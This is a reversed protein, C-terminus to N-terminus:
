KQKKLKNLLGELIEDKDDLLHDQIVIDPIVGEEKKSGNVRVIQGKSINVLINTRPLSYQFVSAYLTPYEGTEEGVITGWGYDQIQAATVAAQSYSQRNVLVYVDGQFRNTKKQTEYLDLEPSYVEGGPNKLIQKFYTTTTDNNQRTFEKLPKSTKLTFESCWKFPKDAFYSVLYDSFSDNGGTNNRLDIILNTKKSAKIEIFASDIFKQYKTEDGSFAGPNLYASGDMFELKQDSWFIESRISEFDNIAHIPNLTYEKVTDNQRIRVHYNEQKGFAQWFYRPFSYFEMKAKKFYPREAAIYPYISCVIEDIFRGNVSLLEDGLKIDTNKSWNKRIYSKGNEFTIELPFLTGDSQIYEMYPQIPFDIYTHGNHIKTVLQQLLNTTELLNLSDEGIASKIQNYTAEFDKKTTYAFPNFHAEEIVNKLASLDELVDNKSFQQSYIGLTQLLTYLTILYIKM